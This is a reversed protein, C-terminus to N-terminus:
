SYIYVTNDPVLLPLFAARDAPTLPWWLMEAFMPRRCVRPGQRTSGRAATKLVASESLSRGPDARM